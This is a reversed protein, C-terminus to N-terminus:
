EKNEAAAIWGDYGCDLNYVEKFGLSKMVLGAKYSRSGSGCYLYYAKNPDLKKVETVFLLANEVNINLANEIIGDFIQYETRVDIIVANDNNDVQEHWQEISISKM